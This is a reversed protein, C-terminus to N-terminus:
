KTIFAFYKKLYPQILSSIGLNLYTGNQIEIIPHKKLSTNHINRIDQKVKIGANKFMKLVDNACNRTINHVIKWDYISKEIEVISSVTSPSSIIPLIHLSSNSQVFNDSFSEQFSYNLFLNYNNKISLLILYYM